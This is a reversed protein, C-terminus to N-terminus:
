FMGFEELQLVSQRVPISFTFETGRGSVSSVSITGNLLEIIKKVVALGMGTTETAYDSNLTKFIKFIQTHYKEDIGNGNDAVTFNYNAYQKEFEIRVTKREKNNFQIANKILNFLLISFLNKDTEFTPLEQECIIETHEDTGLKAKVENLLLNLDTLQFKLKEHTLGTYFLMGDVLSDMRKVRGILLEIQEKVYFDFENNYELLLSSILQGIGRLPTKLDHASIYALETLEKNAQELRQTRLQIKSELDSNLSILELEAKDREIEKIKIIRILENFEDYLMGIEDFSQKEVQISFNQQSSIIQTTEALKIIPKTILAQLWYALLFTFISIAVFILVIIKIREAILSNIKSDVNLYVYGVTEGESIAPEFVHLIGGEFYVKRYKVLAPIITKKNAASYNAIEVGLSDYVIAHIISENVRLKELYETIRDKYGFELAVICNEATLRADVESSSIISSRIQHIELVAFLVSVFTISITSIIFTLLIIKNRISLKLWFKM